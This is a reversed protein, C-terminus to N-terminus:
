VYHISALKTKSWEFLTFRQHAGVFGQERHWNDTKNGTSLRRMMMGSDDRQAEHHLHGAHVERIKCRAFEEPYEFIFMNPIKKCRSLAIDGHTIGIFNTGFTIAKRDLIRDDIIVNKFQAKLMQVFCWSPSEDHNGKSYIIRVREAQKLSADILTYYFQRADDWAKVIDISEVVTGNATQSKFDNVHFLDQGVILNIEKYVRSKIIRLTETLTGRYHDLDSIGFHMDYFPVELMYEEGVLDCNDTKVLEVPPLCRVHDLLELYIDNEAKGKIWSQIVNNDRDLQITTAHPKFQYNLNGAELTKSDARAKTKWKRLMRQFSTFKTGFRQSYYTNYIERATIGDLHM